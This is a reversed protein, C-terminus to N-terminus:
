CVKKDLSKILVNSVTVFCDIKFYFNSIKVVKKKEFDLTQHESIQQRIQVLIDIRIGDEGPEMPDEGLIFGDFSKDM